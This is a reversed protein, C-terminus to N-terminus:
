IFSHIWTWDQLEVHSTTWMVAMRVRWTWCNTCSVQPHQVRHRPGPWWLVTELSWKCSPRPQKFLQGTGESWARLITLTRVRGAERRERGGEGCSCKTNLSLNCRVEVYFVCFIKFSCRSIPWSLVIHVNEAFVGKIFLTKKVHLGHFLLELYIQTCRM